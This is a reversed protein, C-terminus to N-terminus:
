PTTPPLCVSSASVFPFSVVLCLWSLFCSTRCFSTCCVSFRLSGFFFVLFGDLLERKAPGPRQLVYQTRSTSVFVFFSRFVFVFVDPIFVM